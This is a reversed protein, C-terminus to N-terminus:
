FIILSKYDLLRFSKYTVLVSRVLCIEPESSKVHNVNFYNDYDLTKSQKKSAQTQLIAPLIDNEGLIILAQNVQSIAQKQCTLDLSKLAISISLFVKERNAEDLEKQTPLQEPVLLDLQKIKM